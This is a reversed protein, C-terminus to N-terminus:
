SKDNMEKLQLANIIGATSATNNFYVYAEDFPQSIIEKYLDTIEEHTYQSYFLEPEGHMRTYGTQSTQFMTFPLNPFSVNCFTIQNQMLKDTVESLWWSKHRFEIVNNFGPNVARILLELKEMSFDFSPPFQWLICALKNKIGKNCISYFDVIENECNKLKKIHTILRPVKMSFRFGDPARDHWLLLNEITPFKYFSGNFEYTDFHQCYFEFWNKKPVDEPYFLNKWSPTAYSSCGIHLKSKKMIYSNCFTM